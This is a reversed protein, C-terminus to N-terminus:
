EIRLMSTSFGASTLKWANEAPIALVNQVASRSPPAATAIVVERGSRRRGGCGVSAIVPAINEVVAIALPEGTFAAAAACM